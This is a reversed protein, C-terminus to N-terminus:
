FVNLGDKARQVDRERQKQEEEKEKRTGVVFCTLFLVTAVLQLAMTVYLSNVKENIETQSKGRTLFINHNSFMISLIAFFIIGCVQVCSCYLACCKSCPHM